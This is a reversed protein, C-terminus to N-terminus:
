IVSIWGEFISALFFLTAMSNNKLVFLFLVKGMAQIRTADCIALVHEEDGVVEAPM